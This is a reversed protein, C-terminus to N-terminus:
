VLQFGFQANAVSSPTWAGDTDPDTELIRRKNLYTFSQIPQGADADETAGSKCLTKLSFSAADSQKCVTNVVVGAIGTSIGVLPNYAYLDKYNSEPTEVYSTDDDAVADDIAAYNDGSSPTFQTSDGDASVGITEVRMQGLFDNNVSGSSDLFYLDDFIPANYFGALRFRDHYLHSGIKTNLGSGSLVSTGDVHLDFTGETAHCKVKLEIYYWTDKQLGLTSTTAYATGTSPTVSLETGNASAQRISVGQTTGDFLQAIYGNYATGNGFRFAFGLVVTDNTTLGYAPKLWGGADAWMSLAYGGMKGTKILMREVEFSTIYKRSVVYDPQPKYDTSTGFRDFGEVWLLAM